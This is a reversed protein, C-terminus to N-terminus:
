ISRSGPMSVAMDSKYEAAAARTSSRPIPDCGIARFNRKSLSARRRNRSLSVTALRHSSPRLLMQCYRSRGNAAHAVPSNSMRPATGDRDLGVAALAPALARFCARPALQHSGLLSVFKRRHEIDGALRFWRPPEPGGRADKRPVVDRPKFEAFTSYRVKASRTRRRKSDAPSGRSSQWRWPRSASGTTNEQHETLHNENGSEAHFGTTGPESHTFEIASSRCALCRIKLLKSVM